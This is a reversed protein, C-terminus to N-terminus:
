KKKPAVGRFLTDVSLAALASPEPLTTFPPKGGAIRKLFQPIGGLALSGVVLMPLPLAPDVEGAEMAQAFAGFLMGVHGKQFRSFLREFRTTSTLGERVVLRIVDVEEDSAAGLRTFMKELKAQIPADTGLIVELEALLEVYLEEVVALFLDDKTRFYYYIMGVNTRAGRAIDRLSAGDVGSALFEKRAAHVIRPEIDTRPRAM